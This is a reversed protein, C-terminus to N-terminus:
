QTYQVSFLTTVRIFKEFNISQTRGLTLNLGANEGPTLNLGSNKGPTLKLGANKGWTKLGANRCPTLNLM